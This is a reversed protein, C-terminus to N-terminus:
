LTEEKLLASVPLPVVINTRPTYSKGFPHLIGDDVLDSRRRGKQASIGRTAVRIMMKWIVDFNPLITYGNWRWPFYLREAILHYNLV